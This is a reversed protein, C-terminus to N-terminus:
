GNQLAGNPGLAPETEAFTKMGRLWYSEKETRDERYIAFGLCKRRRAASLDLGLTVVHTGAIANVTVGDSSQRRRM